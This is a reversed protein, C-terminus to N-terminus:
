RVAAAVFLSAVFLSPALRSLELRQQQRLRERVKLLKTFAFALAPAV